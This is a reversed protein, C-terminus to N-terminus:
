REPQNNKQQSNRQRAQDFYVADHTIPLTLPNASIHYTFAILQNSSTQQCPHRHLIRPYGSEQESIVKQESLSTNFM